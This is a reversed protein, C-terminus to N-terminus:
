APQLEPNAPAPAQASRRGRIVVRMSSYQIAFLGLKSWLPFVAIFLPWQKTAWIAVAFNLGASLFMLGAWVYGWGLVLGAAEERVHDPLYRLMWGPKLMIVGVAAYILTPKLMVFRADPTAFSAAGFVIALGLGAWQLLGVSRGTARVVLLQLLGVGVAAATAVRVDVHAATLAAFAITPLFDWALPRIATLLSNM